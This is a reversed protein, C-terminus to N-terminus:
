KERCEMPFSPPYSIHHLFLGHPPASSSAASRSSAHLIRAFDDHSLKGRGVDLLTGVIARVMNRLFRNATITFTFTEDWHAHSVSCLNTRASAHLRAFSTFDHYDLLLSAAQNMAQRDLRSTPYLLSYARSFPDKHPSLHYQYTRSLADFRAHASPPVPHLAFAAIDPPLLRNLRGCDCTNSARPPLSLSALLPPPADFHAVMYRAHVGADTRGAATLPVQQRALLSLAQEVHQQISPANPQSQWGAYRSGDFALYLFFRPFPNM